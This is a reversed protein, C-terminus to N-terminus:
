GGDRSPDVLTVQLTAVNISVQVQRMTGDCTVTLTLEVTAATPTLTITMKKSDTARDLSRISGGITGGAMNLEVGSAYDTKADIVLTIDTSGDVSSATATLESLVDNMTKCRAPPPLPDVVGFPPCAALVASAAGVKVLKNMHSLVRERVRTDDSKQPAPLQENMLKKKSM